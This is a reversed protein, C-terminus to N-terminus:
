PTTGGAINGLYNRQEDLVKLVAQLTKPGTGSGASKIEMISQLPQGPGICTPAQPEPTLLENAYSPLLSGIALGSAVAMTKHLFDRRTFGSEETVISSENDDTEEAQDMIIKKEVM